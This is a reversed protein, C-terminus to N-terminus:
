QHLPSIIYDMHFVASHRAHLVSEIFTLRRKQYIKILIILMKTMIMNMIVEKYLSDM